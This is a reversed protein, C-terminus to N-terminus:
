NSTNPESLPRLVVEDWVEILAYAAIHFADAQRQHLRAISRDRERDYIVLTSDGSSSEWDFAWHAFGHRVERFLRNGLFESAGCLLPHQEDLFQQLPSPRCFFRGIPGDIILFTPIWRGLFWGRALVSRISEPGTRWDARATMAILTFFMQVSRGLMGRSELFGSMEATFGRDKMLRQCESRLSTYPTPSNTWASVVGLTRLEEFAIHLQLDKQDDSPESM